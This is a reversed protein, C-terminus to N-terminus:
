RASNLLQEAHMLSTKTIKEGSVLRALEKIRESKDLEAVQMQGSNEQPSKSIVFHVDAFAAVQPLHTVCIVQQGKAIAKLKRGVKEATTGSVGADVEDFLYTRPFQSGGVVRKLSLLIRSLEGGSAAKSLPRPDDKASSQIMFEVDSNGTSSLQAFTRVILLFQVGKMNLDALEDNISDQLLKAGNKRRLHMDQALRTLEKELLLSQSRFQEISREMDQLEAIETEMKLLQGIIDQVDPGFKKQLKRIQSLRSELKETRQANGEANGDLKPLSKRLGFVFDELLNQAQLLKERDASSFESLKSLSRRIRALASDEDTDLAEEVFDVLQLHKSLNKLNKLEDEIQLDEGPSLDLHQIEDRQFLLFDLKQAALPSLRIKEEIQALMSRWEAYKKAFSQRLDWIGSYLDLVDLNYSKSLLNRNEFQGTMEILPVATGTIEILPFVVDRLSSLTILSGNVYVRSKEEALIRKVILTDDECDVGLAKLKEKIDARHSIEFYGEISASSQGTRIEEISAKQGMLLGLSKLLISKGAGTEGSLINLGKRFQVHVNDIIAFNSVRLELLM